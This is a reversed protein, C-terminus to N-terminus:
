GISRIGLDRTYEADIRAKAELWSEISDTDPPCNTIKIASGGPGTLVNQVKESWGEFRQYCLRIASVDGEIAKTFLAQDVASLKKTYRNRRLKLAELEIERLEDISFTKYIQNPQKCGLLVTSIEQRTPWENDPNMLYNLITVRRQEKVTSTRKM